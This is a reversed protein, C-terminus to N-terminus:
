AQTSPPRLKQRRAFVRLYVAVAVATVVALVGYFALLNPGYELPLITANASGIGKKIIEPFVVLAMVAGVVVAGQLIALVGFPIRKSARRLVLSAGFIGLAIVGDHIILAGAFWIAIGLYRSPSVDNVLVLAGLALLAVGAAVLGVRWRRVSASVPPATETPEDGRASATGSAASAATNAPLDTM